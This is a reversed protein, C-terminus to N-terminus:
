SSLPLTPGQSPRLERSRKVRGKMEPDQCLFHAVTFPAEKFELASLQRNDGFLTCRTPGKKM